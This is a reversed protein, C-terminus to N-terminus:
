ERPLDIDALGVWRSGIKGSKRDAIDVAATPGNPGNFIERVIGQEAACWPARRYRVEVRGGLALEGASAFLPVGNPHAGVVPGFQCPLERLYTGFQSRQEGIGGHTERVPVSLGLHAVAARMVRRYIQGGALFVESIEAPWTAGAMCRTIDAIMEESREATMKYEYPALITSADVFGHLASLIIVTPRAAPKVHARFSEYM